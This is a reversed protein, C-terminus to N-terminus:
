FAFGISGKASPPATTERSRIASTAEAIGTNRASRMSGVSTSRVSYPCPWSCLLWQRTVRSEVGTRGQM